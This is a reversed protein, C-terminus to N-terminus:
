CRSQLTNRCNCTNQTSRIFTSCLFARLDSFRVTLKEQVFKEWKLNGSPPPDQSPIVEVTQRLFGMVTRQATLLGHGKKHGLIQFNHAEEANWTVLQGFQPGYM